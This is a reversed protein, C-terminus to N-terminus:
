KLVVVKGYLSIPDLNITTLEIQYVYVGAEVLLGNYTGDWSNEISGTHWILDGWRNYIEFNFELIGEGEAKFVENIDNNDPTFASPVYIFYPDEVRIVYSASDTCGELSTVWQEVTYDGSNSYLHSPDSDVSTHGDGFYYKYVVLHVRM